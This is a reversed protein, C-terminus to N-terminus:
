KLDRRYRELFVRRREGYEVMPMPYDVSGGYEVGRSDWRHIDVAPVGSLEPIWRKIYEAESDHRRSQMWPNFVRFYPQSDAGSGSSWQWNGNNVSPDYDLLRTAFYREGWRWDVLLLKILFNSTVLRLRNHMYGTANLERMGADVLPYGTRGECWREYWLRNNEWEIGDYGEKLSRGALLAPYGWVLNYYFERWYLQKLLDTGRPLKLKFAHYVERISVCGFKIYGSLRTTEYSAEDRMRNYDEYRKINSLIRKGRERGGVTSLEPNVEYYGSLVSLGTERVPLRRRGGMLGGALQRTLMMPEEPEKRKRAERYYPTFKMYVGGTGTLISGVPHLLYDEEEIAEVGLRGCLKVINADRKRAYPTYDRNWGVVSIEMKKILGELLKLETNGKRVMYSRLRSSHERLEKDLSGLSQSMFEVASDSKYRNRSGLLQQENMIFVPMVETCERLVRMLGRNDDLRLDRRFIFM